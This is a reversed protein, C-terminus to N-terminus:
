DVIFPTRTDNCNYSGMPTTPMPLNAIYGFQIELWTLLKIIEKTTMHFVRLLSPPSLESFMKTMEIMKVYEKWSLSPDVDDALPSENCVTLWLLVSSHSLESMMHVTPYRFYWVIVQELAFATLALFIIVSVTWIFHVVRTSSEVAQPIGTVTTETRFTHVM